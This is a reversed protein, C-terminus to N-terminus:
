PKAIQWIVGATALMLLMAMAGTLPQGVRGILWTKGKDTPVFIEATELSAIGWVWGAHLGWALGLQGGDGWRALVLVMGMLWLGPLQPINQRGEWVLHLLAFIASAIAATTVWGYGQHLQNVLFGRFVLEETWGIWLALGLLPLAIQVLAPPPNVEAAVESTLNRKLQTWGLAQQVGVLLGLGVLALGLGLLLSIVLSRRWVMGYAAFSSAELQSAGWIVLPALLYLSALLPIKQAPEIPQGPRWKLFIAM